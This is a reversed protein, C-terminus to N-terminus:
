PIILNILPVKPSKFKIPVLMVAAFIFMGPFKLIKHLQFIFNSLELTCNPAFIVTPLLKNTLTVFLVDIVAIKDKLETSIVALLFRRREVYPPILIVFEVNIVCFIVRIPTLIKRLVIFTVPLRV